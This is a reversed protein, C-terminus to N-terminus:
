HLNEILKPSANQLWNVLVMHLLLKIKSSVEDASAESDQFMWQGIEYETILKLVALKNKIKLIIDCGALCLMGMFQTATSVEAINKFCTDSPKIGDIKMAYYQDSNTDWKRFILKICIDKMSKGREVCNRYCAQILFKYFSGNRLHYAVIIRNVNLKMCFNHTKHSLIISSQDACHSITINTASNKCQNNLKIM